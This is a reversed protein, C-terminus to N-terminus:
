NLLYDLEPMYNTIIYQRLFQYQKTTLKVAGNLINTTRYPVRMFKEIRCYNHCLDFQYGINSNNELNLILSFMGNKHSALAPKGKPLSDLASKIEQIKM